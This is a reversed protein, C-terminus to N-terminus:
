LSGLELELCEVELALEEDEADTGNIRNQLELLRSEVFIKEETPLVAYNEEILQAIQMFDSKTKAWGMLQTARERLDTGNEFAKAISFLSERNAPITVVSIELLELETILFGGDDKYDMEMPIFGISFARRLGQEIEAWTQDGLSTKGIQAEVWLGDETVQWSKVLGIPQTHDHDLLILPNKMYLEMSVALASPVVVDNVRDPFKTSAFGKVTREKASKISTEIHFFKKDSQKSRIIVEKM